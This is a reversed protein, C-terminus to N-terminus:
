GSPTLAGAMEVIRLSGEGASRLRVVAALLVDFLDKGDDTYFCRSADPAGPAVDNGWPPPADPVDADWVVRSPPLLSLERRALLLESLATEVRGPPLEGDYLENMLAPFRTGWGLPELRVSVTSFFAHLLDPSGVRWTLDGVHLGLPM